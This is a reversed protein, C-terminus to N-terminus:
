CGSVAEWEFADRGGRGHLLATISLLMGAEGVQPHTSHLCRGAELVWVTVWPLAGLLLLLRNRCAAAGLWRPWQLM